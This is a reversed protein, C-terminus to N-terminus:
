DDIPNSYEIGEMGDELDDQDESLSPEPSEEKKEGGM